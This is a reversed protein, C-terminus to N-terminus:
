KYVQPYVNQKGVEHGTELNSLNVSSWALALSVQVFPRFFRM